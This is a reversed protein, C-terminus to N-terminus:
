MYSKRGKGSLSTKCFGMAIIKVTAEMCFMLTFFVDFSFLAKKRFSDPEIFPDDFALIFSSMIVSLNM